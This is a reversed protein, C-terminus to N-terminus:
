DKTKTEPKAVSTAAKAVPLPLLEVDGDNARRLWFSTRPVRAGELPLIKGSEMRVRKGKIPKAIIDTM